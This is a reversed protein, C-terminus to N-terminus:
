CPGGHGPLRALAARASASDPGTSNFSDGVVIGKNNIAKAESRPQATVAGLDTLTYEPEAAAALSNGRASGSGGVVTAAGAVVIVALRTLWGHAHGFKM